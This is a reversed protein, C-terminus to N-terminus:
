LDFFERLSSPPIKDTKDTTPQPYVKNPKYFKKEDIESSNATPTSPTKTQTTTNNDTTNSDFSGSASTATCTATCTTGSDCITYFPYFPYHPIYPYYPISPSSKMDEVLNIIKIAEEVKNVEVELCINNELTIKITIM